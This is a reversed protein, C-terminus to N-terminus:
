GRSLQETGEGIGADSSRSCRPGFMPFKRERVASCGAVRTNYQIHQIMSLTWTPFRPTTPLHDAPLVHARKGVSASRETSKVMSWDTVNSTTTRSPLRSCAALIIERWSFLAGVRWAQDPLPGRSRISPQRPWDLPCGRGSIRCPRCFQDVLSNNMVIFCRWRLPLDCHSNGSRWCVQFAVTPTANGPAANEPVCRGPPTPV